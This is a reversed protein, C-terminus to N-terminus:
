LVLQEPLTQQSGSAYVAEDVTLVTDGMELSQKLFMVTNPLPILDTIKSMYRGPYAM